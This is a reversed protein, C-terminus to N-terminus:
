SCRNQLVDAFSQKWNKNIGIQLSLLESYKCNCSWVYSVLDTEYHNEYTLKIRLEHTLNQKNSTFIFHETQSNWSSDKFALM